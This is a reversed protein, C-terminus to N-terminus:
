SRSWGSAVHSDVWEMVCIPPIKTCTLEWGTAHGDAGLWRAKQLIRGDSRMALYFRCVRGEAITEDKEVRALVTCGRASLKAM